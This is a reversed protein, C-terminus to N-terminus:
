QGGSSYSLTSSKSDSVIQTQEGLMGKGSFRDLEFFEVSVAQYKTFIVGVGVAVQHFNQMRMILVDVGEM